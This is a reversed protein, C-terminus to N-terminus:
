RTNGSSCDNAGPPSYSAQDELGAPRHFQVINNQLIFSEFAVLGATGVKVLEGLLCTHSQPSWGCPVM